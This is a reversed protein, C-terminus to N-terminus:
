AAACVEDIRGALATLEEREEAELRRDRSLKRARLLLSTADRRLAVADDGDEVAAYLHALLSHLQERVQTYMTM